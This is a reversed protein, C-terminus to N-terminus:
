ASAHPGSLGAILDAMTLAAEMAEYGKNGMAGGARAEAQEVTETTLLGFGVPLAHERAVDALTRSAEGAVFDFHATEGRIVVGLAVLCVYRGTRAAAAAAVGLEFAGPVWLIDVQQEPLGADRCCDRAGDLLRRTIREHYQSVLIAIRGVPGPRGRFERM